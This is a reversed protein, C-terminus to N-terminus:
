AIDTFQHFCLNGCHACKLATGFLTYSLARLRVVDRGAAIVRNLFSNPLSQCDQLLPDCNQLHYGPIQQVLIETWFTHGRKSPLLFNTVHLDKEWKVFFPSSRPTGLPIQLFHFPIKSDPGRGLM